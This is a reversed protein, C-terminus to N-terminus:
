SFQNWAGSHWVYGNYPSTSTNFAIYGETSSGGPVGVVFSIVPVDAPLQGPSIVGSLNNFGPQQRSFAGTTANYATLWDNPAAPSNQPPTFIAESKWNSGDFVIWISQNQVLTMSAGGNVTGSTPTLTAVGAGFNTIFLAFPASVVSNLAVAVPSADSLILLTGADSDQTTYSTAGTQDNVTGLGSLIDEVTVTNTDTVTTSSGTSPTSNQATQLDTIQGKLVRVAQNLDVLSNDHSRFANEVSVPDKGNINSPFRFSPPNTSM